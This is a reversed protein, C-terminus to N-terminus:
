SLVRVWLRPRSWDLFGLWLRELPAGVITLIQNTVAPKEPKAGGGVESDVPSFGIHEGLGDYLIDGLEGCGAERTWRFARGSGHQRGTEAFICAGTANRM